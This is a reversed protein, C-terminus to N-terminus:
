TNQINGLTPRMNIANRGIHTAMSPLGIQGAIPNIAIRCHLCCINGRMLPVLRAIGLLERIQVNSQSNESLAANRFILDSPYGFLQTGDIPGNHLQRFWDDEALQASLHEGWM